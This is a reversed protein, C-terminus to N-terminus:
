LSRPGAPLPTGPADTLLLCSHESHAPAMVASFPAILFEIVWALVGHTFNAQQLYRRHM